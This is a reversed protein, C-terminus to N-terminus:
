STEIRRHTQRAKKIAADAERTESESVDRRKGNRVRRWPREQVPTELKEGFRGGRRDAM